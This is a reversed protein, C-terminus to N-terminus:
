DTFNERYTDTFRDDKNEDDEFNENYRDTFREKEYQSDGRYNEEEAAVHQEQRSSGSFAQQQCEL